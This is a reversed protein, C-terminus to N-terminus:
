DFKVLTKMRHELSHESFALKVRDPTYFDVINSIILDLSITRNLILNQAIKLIGTNKWMPFERVDFAAARLKLGKSLIIWMDILQETEVASFVVYTCGPALLNMAITRTNPIGKSAKLEPLADFVYQAYNGHSDVILKELDAQQTEVNYIYDAGLDTGIKLRYPNKDLLTVSYVGYMKKLLQLAILGCPGAGLVIADDGPMPPNALLSRLVSTIPEMLSAEKLPLNDNLVIAAACNDDAFGRDTFWRNELRSGPFLPRIARYEALGGFDTQGWYVIKDGIKVQKDSLKSEVVEGVYEHGPIVPWQPPFLYGEYYGVDTSCISVRKSKLMICKDELPPIPVDIFDIEQPKNIVYAKMM